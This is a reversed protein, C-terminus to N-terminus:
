QIVKKKVTEPWEYEGDADCTTVEVNSWDGIVTFEMAKVDEHIELDVWVGNQKRFVRLTGDDQAVVKIESFDM